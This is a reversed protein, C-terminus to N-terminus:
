ATVVIDNLSTVDNILAEVLKAGINDVGEMNGYLLISYEEVYYCILRKNGIPNHSM